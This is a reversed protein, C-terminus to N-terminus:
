GPFGRFVGEKDVAKAFDDFDMNALSLNSAVDGFAAAIVRFTKVPKKSLDVALVPHEPHTLAPRDVIFAFTHSGSESIVSPLEEATLGDFAPDSVFDLEPSFEDEPDQLIMRLSKWASEDSFDTRVVLSNETSPIKRKKTETKPINTVEAKPGSTIPRGGARLCSLLDDNENARIADKLFEEFSPYAERLPYEDRKQILVVRNGSSVDIDIALYSSSGDWLIPFFRGVIISLKPNSRAYERYSRMDIIATKLRLFHFATYIKFNPDFPAGAMKCVREMEAKHSDSPSSILPPVFGAKLGANFAESEGHLITGNHWSYLELIPEIAGTIDARKLDKKITEVPLGPQLSQALAPNRRLVAAELKQILDSPM